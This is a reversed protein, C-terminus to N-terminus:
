RRPRRGPKSSRKSSKAKRQTLFRAMRVRQACSESCYAQKPRRYLFLRGCGPRQCTRLWPGVEVLLDFVLDFFLRKPTTSPLRFIYAHARNWAIGDESDIEGKFPHYFPQASGLRGIGVQLSRSIDGLTKKDINFRWRATEGGLLLLAGVFRDIRESLAEHDLREREELIERLIEFAVQAEPRPLRSRAPVSM